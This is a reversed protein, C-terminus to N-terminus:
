NFKKNLLIKPQELYNGVYVEHNKRDLVYIM